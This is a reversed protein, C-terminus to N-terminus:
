IIGEPFRAPPRQDPALQGIAEAVLASKGMGGPGYLVVHQGPQLRDLLSKLESQRGVFHEVRSPLQLPARIPSLHRSSFFPAENDTEFEQGPHDGSGLGSSEDVAQTNLEKLLAEALAVIEPDQEVQAVAIEEELVAIRAGSGPRQELMELAKILDSEVGCKRELASKLRFYAGIVPVQPPQFVSDITYGNIAAVLVNIVISM